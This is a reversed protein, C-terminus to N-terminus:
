PFGVANRQPIADRLVTLFVKSGLWAALSQMLPPRM